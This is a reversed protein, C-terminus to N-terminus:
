VQRLAQRMRELTFEILTADAITPLKTLAVPPCDAKYSQVSIDFGMQTMASVFARGRALDVFRMGLLHGQGEVGVVVNPFERAVERFGNEIQRSAATIAGGNALTWKMTILYALAALEEQGNTVLAGFQPLLDYRANFLIRSAPYEGGPFGKGLVVMTPKLGYHRFLFLGEYWMCSQIEDVITPVDHAACLQYALQLFEETLRRAGYNMMIIEHFFAAIKFPPQEYQQFAAKLDALSNPRVACVRFAGASELQTRLEPWLGRLLQTAITTGHYNGTPAGDDDGLVLFVPVRGHYKPAASAADYRDFRALALKFAAEAALSGTELNLVRNLVDPATSNLVGTLDATASLGNAARVLEEELRRTIPGRTNNHTANPIGLARARDILAYGPFNHGLPVHYHESKSIVYLRGDEGVRFYGLGSVPALATKTASQFLRTGAGNASGALPKTVVQGAQPLLERLRQQAAAPWFEVPAAALKQLAGGDSGTLFARAQCAADTVHAGVLDALSCSVPTFTTM